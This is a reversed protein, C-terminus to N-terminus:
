FFVAALAELVVLAKPDGEAMLATLAEIKEENEGAALQSVAAAALALAPRALTRVQHLCELTGIAADVALSAGGRQKPDIRRRKRRTQAGELGRRGHWM